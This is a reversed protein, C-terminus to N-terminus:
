QRFNTYEITNTYSTSPLLVSVVCNCTEFCHCLFFNEYFLLWWLLVQPLHLHCCCFSPLKLDPLASRSLLIVWWPLRLSLFCTSTVHWMFYHSYMYPYLIQVRYFHCRWFFARPGSCWYWPSSNGAPHWLFGCSPSIKQM